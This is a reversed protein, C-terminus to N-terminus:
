LPLLEFLQTSFVLMVSQIELGYVRIFVPRLIKKCTLIKLHCKAKTDTYNILEHFYGVKTDWTPLSIPVFTWCNGLRRM